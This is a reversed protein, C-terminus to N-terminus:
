WQPDGYTQKLHTPGKVLLTRKWVAREKQTRNVGREEQSQVRRQSEEGTVLLQTFLMKVKRPMNWFVDDMEQQTGSLYNSLVIRRCIFHILIGTHM